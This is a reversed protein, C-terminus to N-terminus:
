HCCTERNRYFKTAPSVLKPSPQAATGPPSHYDIRRVGADHADDYGTITRRLYGIADNGFEAAALNAAEDL